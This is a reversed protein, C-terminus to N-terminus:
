APTSLLPQVADAVRALGFWWRLPVFADAVRLLCLPVRYDAVQIALPHRPSTVNVAHPPPTMVYVNSALMNTVFPIHPADAHRPALPRRKPPM